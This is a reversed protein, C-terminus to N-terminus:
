WKALTDNFIDQTIQEMIVKHAEPRIEDPMKDAPFDYYYSYTKSFNEKPHKRNKFDIKVSVSLRNLAAQQNGTSAAPRIDYATIVGSYILDGNQNAYDLNSMNQIKDTLALRFEESFGPIVLRASNQFPLVTFTKVDPEINVGSFSYIGCSQVSLLFILIGALFIKKM